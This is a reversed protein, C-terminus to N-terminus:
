LRRRTRAGGEDNLALRVSGEAASLPVSRASRAMDGPASVPTTAVETTRPNMVRTVITPLPLLLFLDALSFGM